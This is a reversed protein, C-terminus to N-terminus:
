SIRRAGTSARCLYIDADIGTAARYRAHIQRHFQDAKSEEVLNVTCGGFGGGTM